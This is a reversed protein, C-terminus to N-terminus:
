LKIKFKVRKPSSKSKKAIMKDKEIDYHLVGGSFFDFGRIIYANNGELRILQKNVFYTITLANAEVFRPQNPQNPQNQEYYASKKNNGKAIIKKVKHKASFIQIEEASLVLSGQTVKVDGTYVSLGRPEDIVVTQSEVEIPAKNDSPLAQLVAFSSLLFLAIFKNMIDLLM